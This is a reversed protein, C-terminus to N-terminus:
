PKTGEAEHEAMAVRLEEVRARYILRVIVDDGMRTAGAAALAAADNEPSLKKISDPLNGEPRCADLLREIARKFVVFGYPSEHWKFTGIARGAEVWSPFDAFPNPETRWREELRSLAGAMAAIAAFLRRTPEDPLKAAPEFSAELRKRMEESLSRRGAVEKLKDHLSRPLRFTLVAEGGKTLEPGSGDGARIKGPM